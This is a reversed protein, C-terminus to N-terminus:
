EYLMSPLTPVHGQRKKQGDQQNGPSLMHKGLIAM